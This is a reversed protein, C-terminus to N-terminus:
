TQEDAKPTRLLYLASVVWIIVASARVLLSLRPGRQWTMLPGLIGYFAAYALHRRTPKPLM